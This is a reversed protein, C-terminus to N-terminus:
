PTVNAVPALMRPLAKQYRLEFNGRNHPGCSESLLGDCLVVDSLPFVLRSRDGKLGRGHDLVRKVDITKAGARVREISTTVILSQSRVKATLGNALLAAETVGLPGTNTLLELARHKATPLPERPM